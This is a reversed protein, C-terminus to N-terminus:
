DRQLLSSPECNLASSLRILYEARARNIDKQGQEYQQITRLPVGSAGALQSQSLGNKIRMEKLRSAKGSEKAAVSYEKSVFTIYEDALSNLAEKKENESINWPLEELLANKKERYLGTLGAINLTSLIEEFGIGLEWQLRALAYGCYYEASLAITHRQLHREYEMGSRDLVEYTLEVGSMGATIRIDGREFESAAGSSIFLAMMEKPKIHMSHEAFDLMRGLSECAPDLLIEDYAHIM